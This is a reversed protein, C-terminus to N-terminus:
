KAQGNTVGFYKVILMQVIFTIPVAASVIASGHEPFIEVLVAATSTIAAGITVRKGIVVNNM